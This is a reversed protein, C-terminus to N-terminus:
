YLDRKAKDVKISDAFEPHELVYRLLERLYHDSDQLLKKSKDTDWDRPRKKSHVIESRTSYIKRLSRAFVNANELQIAQKLLFCGRDVFKYSINSHDQSDNVLLNEMALVNDLFRDNTYPEPFSFVAVRFPPTSSTPLKLLFLGINYKERLSRRREIEGAVRGSLNMRNTLPM